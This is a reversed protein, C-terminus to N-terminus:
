MTMLIHSDFRSKTLVPLYVVAKSSVSFCKELSTKSIVIVIRVVVYTCHM